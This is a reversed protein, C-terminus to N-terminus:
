AYHVSQTFIPEDLCQSCVVADSDSWGQEEAQMMMRKAMGM